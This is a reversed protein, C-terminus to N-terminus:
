RQTATFPGLLAGNEAFTGAFARGDPAFRDVHVTGISTTGGCNTERFPVTQQPIGAAIEAQLTTARECPTAPQGAVAVKHLQLLITGNSSPAASGSWVM